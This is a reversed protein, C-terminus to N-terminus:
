RIVVTQYVTSSDFTYSVTYTGPTNVDVNHEVKVGSRDTPATIYRSPSYPTGAPLYLIYESLQLDQSVPGATLILPLSLIEIDGLSNTVQVTITYEGSLMTDVNQSTVRISSSLDGDLVDSARLRSLVRVSGGAQFVLPKTLSFRPKEYDTYRVTRSATSM